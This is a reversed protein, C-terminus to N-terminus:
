RTDSAVQQAADLLLKFHARGESYSAYRATM